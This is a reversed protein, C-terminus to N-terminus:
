DHGKLMANFMKERENPTLTRKYTMKGECQDTRFDGSLIEGRANITIGEGQRRDSSWEGDYIERKGFYLMRGQGTRKGDLYEGMYVDGTLKDFMRGRNCKRDQDWGGEYTSGNLYIIKGQGEKIFGKHQGYYLDGNPYLLKGVSSCFGNKFYGEFVISNTLLLRGYGHIRDEKIPGRYILKNQMRMEGEIRNDNKWLGEFIAGDIWTLTGKGERKGAKWQGEYTAEEYEAGMAGPLSYAYRMVGFGCPRGDM